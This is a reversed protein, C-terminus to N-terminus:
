SVGVYRAELAGALTRHAASDGIVICRSPELGHARAFALPLGPLPPRCWCVPPGAPHSCLAAEVAGRVADRIRAAAGALREAAGGPDWDFVLHPAQPDEAALAARWGAREVARAAVLVGGRSGAARVREFLVREVSAFGEELSPPELERLARM